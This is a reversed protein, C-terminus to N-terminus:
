TGFCFFVCTDKGTPITNVEVKAARKEFMARVPWLIAITTITKSTKGANGYRGYRPPCKPGPFFINLGGGRWFFIGWNAASM